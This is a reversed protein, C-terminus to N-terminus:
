PTGDKYNFAGIGKKADNAIYSNFPSMNLAKAEQVRMTLLREIKTPSMLDIPLKGGKEMSINYDVLPSLGFHQLGATAYQQASMTSYFEAIQQAALAPAIKGAKVEASIAAIIQWDTVTGKLPAYPTAKKFNSLADIVANKEYSEPRAGAAALAADYDIMYPSATTIARKDSGKAALAQDEAFVAAYAQRQLEAAPMTPALPNALKYANAIAPARDAVRKQVNSLTVAMAGNGSAAMGALNAHAAIFPVSTEYSNGYNGRQVIKLWTDREEPKMRKVMDGTLQGAGAGNLQTLHMNIISALAEGAKEQAAKEEDATRKLAARERAMEVRESGLDMQLSQGFAERHVNFTELAVKANGAAANARSAALQGNAQAVLVQADAVAKARLGDAAVAPTMSKAHTALSQLQNIQSSSENEKTALNNYVPLMKQVEMSNMIYTLPNQFFSVSQLSALEDGVREREARLGAQLDLEKLIASEPDTVDMRMARLVKNVAENQAITVEAQARAANAAAEGGAIIASQQAVAQEQVQQNGLGLARLVEPIMGQVTSYARQAADLPAGSAYETSPKAGITSTSPPLYSPPVYRPDEVYAPRGVGATGQQLRGNAKALEEDLVRIHEPNTTRSKEKQLSAIDAHALTVVDASDNAGWQASQSAISGVDVTARNDRPM